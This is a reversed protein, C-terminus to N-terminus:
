RSIDNVAEQLINVLNEFHGFNNEEYNKLFSKRQSDSTLKRKDEKEDESVTYTQKSYNSVCSSDSDIEEYNPENDTDVLEEGASDASYKECVEYKEFRKENSIRDQFLGGSFSHGPKVLDRGKETFSLPVSVDEVKDKKIEIYVEEPVVEPEAEIQVNKVSVFKDTTSETEATRDPKM